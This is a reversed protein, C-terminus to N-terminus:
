IAPLHRCIRHSEGRRDKYVDPKTESVSLFLVAENLMTKAMDCNRVHPTYM